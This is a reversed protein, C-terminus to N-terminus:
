DRPYVGVKKKKYQESSRKIQLLVQNTVGDMSSMKLTEFDRLQRAEALTEAKMGHFLISFLYFRFLRVRVPVRLAWNTLVNQM